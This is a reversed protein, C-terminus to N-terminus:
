APDAPHGRRELGEPRDGRLHLHRRQGKQNIIADIAVSTKGTQRDGIILERQGRGIPIMADISKLGTMLPQKVPQRSVVGPAIVEIPRREESAVPGLDDIPAGLANVVRGIMADGVPVSAILNTRKVTDGEKIGVGSDFLAVGVASEELNLVMGYVSEIRQPDRPDRKSFELLEGAMAGRLGYVTAIADGVKLITGVNEVDIGAQYGTLERELIETIEDPRLAM